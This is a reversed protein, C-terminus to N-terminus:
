RRYRVAAKGMKSAYFIDSKSDWGFNVFWGLRDMGEKNPWGSNSADPLPAALKWSQGGDQTEMFGDM